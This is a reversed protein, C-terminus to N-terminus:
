INGNWLSSSHISVAVNKNMVAGLRGGKTHRETRSLCYAIQLRTAAHLDRHKVLYWVM